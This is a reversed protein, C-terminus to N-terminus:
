KLIFNVAAFITMIAIGKKFYNENIRLHIKHGLKIAIFVPIITWLINIFFDLHLQGQLYLQILRIINFGAFFAALTTRLNSKNKFNKQLASVWFPGGIGFAGQSIGGILILKEKFFRPFIYKDFFMIKVSLFFLLIGFISTLIKTPFKAFIIVGIITGIISLPLASIFIKKDFNKRDGFFIYASSCTGIYIGALIMQKFDIFFGLISYAILGGGFGIISEIFFGISFSIAILTATLM